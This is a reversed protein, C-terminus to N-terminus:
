GAPHVTVGSGSTGLTFRYTHGGHMTTTKDDVCVRIPPVAQAQPQLVMTSPTLDVLIEDNQYSIQFRVQGPETPLAPHLWLKGERTELGTYCRPLLDATGAM